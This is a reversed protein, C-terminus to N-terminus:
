PKAPSSSPSSQCPWAKGYAILVIARSNNQRAEPNERLWKVVVDLRQGYTVNGPICFYKKDLTSQFLILGDEVGELYGACMWFKANDQSTCADLLRNGTTATMLDDASYAPYMGLAPSLVLAVAMTNGLKM